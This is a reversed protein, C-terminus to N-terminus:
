PSFAQALRTLRARLDANREAKAANSVIKNLQAADASKLLAPANHSAAELRALREQRWGDNFPLEFSTSMLFVMTKGYLDRYTDFATRQEETMKLPNDALRTTFIDSLVRLLDAEADVSRGVELAYQQTNQGVQQITRPNNHVQEFPNTGYVDTGTFLYDIFTENIVLFWTLLPVVDEYRPADGAANRTNFVADLLARVSPDTQHALHGARRAPAAIEKFRAGAARADCSAQVLRVHAAKIAPTESASYDPFAAAIQGLRAKVDPDHQCQAVDIAYQRM